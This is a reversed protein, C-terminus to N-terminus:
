GNTGKFPVSEKVIVIAASAQITERASRHRGYSWVTSVSEGNLAAQQIDNRDPAGAAIDRNMMKTVSDTHGIKM